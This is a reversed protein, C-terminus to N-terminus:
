PLPVVRLDLRDPWDFLMLAHTADYTDLQVVGKLAAVRQMPIQADDGGDETVPTYREMDGLSLKLVGRATNAVLLFDRGQSKYLIMDLPSSHRGLEALTEGTVHAGAQLDSMRIKVLPTCTYAALLYQQGGSSYPVM